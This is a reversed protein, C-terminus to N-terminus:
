DPSQEVWIPSSWAWQDNRQRVRVHYWDRSRGHGQHSFAFRRHYESRPVARHFCVAPSVFGGLYVTRTGTLLEGLYLEHQRDNITARLRTGANGEIELCMGETAPTHLSPNQRTQTDFRVRGADLRQWNSTAFDDGDPVETPGYGRFRPEVRHLAGDVVRLDVEWRTAEPREGWGVEVYVQFTGRTEVQPLVSERHIVRNNHLVEVYDISSGAWVEVEIWREEGAPALDGMLSENLSFRLEIRDGTLAYTRRKTIADWLDERTLSSAWVGLRGAGYSGPFANHHDSSGIVGFVYGQSWGYQATGQEHRPGMSHLYPYPGESSESSGHFSFIEVVPSRVASFASWNIGRSGQKYGIHHPILLAPTTLPGTAQRLVQLDAAEVIPVDLADRYYVCYDGFAM